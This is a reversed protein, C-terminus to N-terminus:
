EERGRQRRAPALTSALFRAAAAARERIPYDDFHAWRLSAQAFTSSLVEALTEVPVDDRV